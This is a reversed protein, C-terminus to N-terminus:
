SWDLSLNKLLRGLRIELRRTSGPAFTGFTTETKERDDWVMRVRVAHRGAPVDLVKELEGKSIRLGVLNRSSRGRLEASLLPVDDLWIRLTGDKLPYELNVLLRATRAAPTPPPPGPALSSSPSVSPPPEAPATELQGPGGAASSTVVAVVLLAALRWGAGRKGSRPAQWPGRPTTITAQPPFPRTPTPAVRPMPDPILAELAHETGPDAAALLEEIEAAMQAGNAYREDRSKALARAIVRDVPVPV